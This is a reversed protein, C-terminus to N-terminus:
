RRRRGGPLRKPRDEDQDPVVFLEGIRIELVAAIRELIGITPNAIGRELRGLYSRDVGSAAALTESSVGRSVRLRRVNWAVLQRADMDQDVM